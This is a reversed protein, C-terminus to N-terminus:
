EQGFYLTPDVHEGDKIVEYHLHAGTSIGSSGVLGVVDGMNLEDGESVKFESLQTYRTAYHEGHQVLVMRGYGKGEEKYEVKVVVGDATAVVPVGVKAVIDIGRHMKEVKYIPHMRMGFGSSVKLIDAEAIPKICPINNEEAINAKPKLTEGISIDSFSQIMLMGVPLILAYALKYLKSTKNKAIMNIRKKITLWYFNSAIGTYPPPSIGKVLLNLYSIKEDCSKAVAEDALFEHVTKLSRKLLFVFPNFWFVICYIEAVILDLTHLQRAHAKEHCLISARDASSYEQQPIFVWRMFTFPLEGHAVTFLKSSSSIANRKINYIRKLQCIFRWLMIGTGMFYVWYAFGLPSSTKASTVLSEYAYEADPLYDLEAIWNALVFPADSNQSVFSYNISPLIVPFILCLLLVIRNTLHFTTRRFLLWYLLYLLVMAVNVKLFYVILSTM